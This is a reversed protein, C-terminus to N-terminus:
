NTSNEMLDINHQYHIISGMSLVSPNKFPLFFDDKEDKGDRPTIIGGEVLGNTPLM